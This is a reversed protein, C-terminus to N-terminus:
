NRFNQTVMLGHVGADLIGIGVRGFHPRLLNARHGPSNMLGQHARPLTQAHALNEGAVLYRVGGKRLRDSLTGGEPSYHSFYGRALMDGSHARAVETAEPDAALPKLGERAREANVMELMRAELDPRPRADSVRFPLPVSTRSDPQVVLAQLPRRVAPEFIAGLRAEVWSAAPELRRALASDQLWGEVVRPIPVAYLLLTVICAHVLGNVAGPLLGLTRNLPHAHVAPPTRRLVAGTPIGLLAQAALWLTVLALPEAWVGLRPFFTVLLAAVTAYGVFAIGIAAVLTLLVVAGLVFGRRWGGAVALVVVLLLLADVLNLNM